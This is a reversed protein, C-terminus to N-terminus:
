TSAGMVSAFEIVVRGHRFTVLSSPWGRDPFPNAPKTDAISHTNHSM